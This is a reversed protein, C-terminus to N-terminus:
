LIVSKGENLWVFQQYEAYKRLLNDLERIVYPTQM